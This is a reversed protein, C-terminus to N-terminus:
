RSDIWKDATGCSGNKDLGEDNGMEVIAVAEWKSAKMRM